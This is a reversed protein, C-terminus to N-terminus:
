KHIIIYFCILFSIYEEIKVATSGTSAIPVIVAINDFLQYYPPYIKVNEDLDIILFHNVKIYGFDILFNKILSLLLESYYDYGVMTLSENKNSLQEKIQRALLIAIRSTYYSNQFLRKAYFFDSTHVKSGIKFHTNSIKFGDLSLIKEKINFINSM